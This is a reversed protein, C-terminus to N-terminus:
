ALVVRVQGPHLLDQAVAIQVPGGHTRRPQGVLWHRTRVSRGVILVDAAADEDRPGVHGVAHEPREILRLREPSRDADGALAAAGRRLLHYLVFSGARGIPGAKREDVLDFYAGFRRRLDDANIGRAGLLRWAAPPNSVGALYLDAGPKTVAAVEAVYADRRGAPIGHYCGIDVVLDFDGRVGAERLRTVDGVAFSASSGSAAARSKAMAIAQPAFDVGTAEWGQSALYISDTGTGCGLDLARGPLRGQALEVLEPRPETSDWRPRGSRYALQYFLSGISM